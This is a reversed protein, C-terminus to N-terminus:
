RNPWYPSTNRKMTVVLKEKESEEIIKIKHIKDSTLLAKPKVMQLKLDRENKQSTKEIKIM